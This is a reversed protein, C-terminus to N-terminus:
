NGRGVRTMKGGVMMWGGVTLGNSNSGAAPATFESASVAEGDEEEAVEPEGAPEGEPEAEEQESAEVKNAAEIARKMSAHLVEITALEMGEKPAFDADWAKIEEVLKAAVETDRRNLETTLEENKATLTKIEADKAKITEDTEFAEVKKLLEANQAVVKDYDEQTVTKDDAVITGGPTKNVDISVTFAAETDDVTDGIKTDTLPTLKYEGAGYYSVFNTIHKEIQADSDDDWTWVSDIKVPDGADNVRVLDYDKAQIKELRKESATVIKSEFQDKALIGCGDKLPCAPQEPYFIVSVGTGDFALV